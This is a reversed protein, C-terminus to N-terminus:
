PLGDVGVDLADGDGVFEAGGVLPGDVGGWDGVLLSPAGDGALGPFEGDLSVGSLSLVFWPEGRLVGSGSVSM